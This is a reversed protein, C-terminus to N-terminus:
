EISPSISVLPPYSRCAAWANSGSKSCWSVNAPAREKASINVTLYKRPLQAAAPEPDSNGSSPTAGSHPLAKAGSSAPVATTTTLWAIQCVKNPPSAPGTEAVRVGGEPLGEVRAM